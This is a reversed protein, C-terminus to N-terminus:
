QVLAVAGFEADQSGRAQPLADDEPVEFPITLRGIVADSDVTRDYFTVRAEWRGPTTVHLPRRVV